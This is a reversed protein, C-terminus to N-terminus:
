PAEVTDPPSDDQSFKVWGSLTAARRPGIGSVRQLDSLTVFPGNEEREAIIRRALEPGIGPLRELERADASNVDILDSINRTAPAAASGNESSDANATPRPSSILIDEQTWKAMPLTRRDHWARFGLFSVCVVVIAALAIAERKTFGFPGAHNRHDHPSETM